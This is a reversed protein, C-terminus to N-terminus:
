TWLMSATFAVSILPPNGPTLRGMNAWQSSALNLRPSHVPTQILAVGQQPSPNILNQGDEFIKPVTAGQPCYPHTPLVYLTREVEWLLVVLRSGLLRGVAPVQCYWERVVTAVKTEKFSAGRGQRGKVMVIEALMATQYSCCGNRAWFSNEVLYACSRLLFPIKHQKAWPCVVRACWLTGTGRQQLPSETLENGMSLSSIGM